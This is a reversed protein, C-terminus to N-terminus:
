SHRWIWRTCFAAAPAFRPAVTHVADLWSVGINRRVPNPCQHRCGGPFDGYLRLSAGVGISPWVVTEVRPGGLGPIWEPMFWLLVISGLAFIFRWRTELWAKYWLM